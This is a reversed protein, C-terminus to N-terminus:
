SLLSRLENSPRAILDSAACLVVAVLVLDWVYIWVNGINITTASTTIDSIINTTLTYTIGMWIIQAVVSLFSSIFKRFYNSTASSALTAFFIPSVCLLCAIEFNRVILKIYMRCICVMIVISIVALPLVAVILGLLDSLWTLISSVVGGGSPSTVPQLLDIAPAVGMIQSAISRVINYIGRCMNVSVDVWIKALLLQGFVKLWGRETGLEFAVAENTFGIGFCIVAIGYGFAKTVVVASDVFTDFSTGIDHGSFSISTGGTPSAAGIINTGLDQWMLNLGDGIVNIADVFISDSNSVTDSMTNSSALLGNYLDDMSAISDRHEQIKNAANQWKAETRELTDTNI